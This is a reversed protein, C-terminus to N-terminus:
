SPYTVPARRRDRVRAPLLRARPRGLALWLGSAWALALCWGAIVDSAYHWEEWVIIAAYALMFAGSAIALPRRERAEALLVIAALTAMCWTASGSPFSYADPAGEIPPREVIGKTLRSLLVAVGIAGALYLAARLRRRALLGLVLLATVGGVLLTAVDLIPDIHVDESSVPAIWDLVDAVPGDVGFRGPDGSVRAAIASFLALPALFAVAIFRRGSV